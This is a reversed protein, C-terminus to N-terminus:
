TGTPRMRRLRQRMCDGHFQRMRRLRQRKSECVSLTPPKTTAPTRTTSKDYTVSLHLVRQHTDSVSHSKTRALTTIISRSEIRRMPAEFTVAFSENLLLTYEHFDESDTFSGNIVTGTRCQIENPLAASTIKFFVCLLGVLKFVLAM